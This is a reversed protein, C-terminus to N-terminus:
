TAEGLARRRADAFAPDTPLTRIKRAASKAWRRAAERQATTIPGGNAREQADRLMQDRVAKNVYASANGTTELHEAVVDDVSVTKVIKAM